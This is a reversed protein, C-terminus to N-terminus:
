AFLNQLLYPDFELNFQIKQAPMILGLMVHFTLMGAMLSLVSNEDDRATISSGSALAGVAVLSNINMQESNAITQILVRNNPQDVKNWWTLVLRNGYWALMRRSSIFSDKSDTNGPYAATYAGWLCNGVTFNYATAIGNGRLFNAQPISLSIETGDDTVVAQCQVAKNSPSSFPVGNRQRDEVATVGAAHTALNMIRDGVKVKPWCLYLNESTLGNGAKYAPVDTYKKLNADAPLDAYAVANFVANIGSAKAAMIMAVTADQSFNPALIIGPVMRFKPFAQEVLELGSTIGTEVDYGGIVEDTTVLEPAAYDYSATFIKGATIAAELSSGEIVTIVATIRSISYDTGEIYANNDVDKLAVRDLLDGTSLTAKGALFEVAEDTKSLFHKAPDFVNAFIVPAKGYLTFSSFALESLGWKKFDDQSAQIGLNEGAEADSYCIVLKGPMAKARTEPSLRHIPACGVGMPLAGDVNVPPALSTPIQNVSVGYDVGM